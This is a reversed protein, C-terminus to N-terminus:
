FFQNYIYKRADEIEEKTKETEIEKEIETSIIDGKEDVNFNMVSYDDKLIFPIFESGSGHFFKFFFEYFHLRLANLFVLIGELVIVVINGFILAIVIIIQIFIGSGPITEIMATIALMLAVHALALALIRIYSLVNSPVSLVTEFTDISGEGLLAAVSSAKLYSIGFVKGLPKLIVLLLGPILPLLIPPFPASFWANLNFGWLVLLLIFGDLFLIKILSESFALYKKSEKWYNIFQLTWGLNIQIVGIALTLMLIPIINHLPDHFTTVGIFPLPIPISKLRYGLIDESGFFEGYLFGGLVAWIGCWFIIWCFNYLDGGRKKFVISGVIGSIILVLGHGIDGFMFGFLLPFTIFLFPTPDIESYSPTGYMRTLTEFPRIIRNHTMMTPTGKEIDEKIEKSDEKKDIINEKTIHNVGEEKIKENKLIEGRKGIDFIEIDIKDHFLDTLKQAIDEKKVQLTFFKYSLRNLSLEEFQNEAWNYEELNSIVENMAAFKLLNAERIRNIEKEYKSLYNVMLEVEKDIREFNIGDPTLYKKIIPVEEAHIISLKERLDSEQEKLYIIFIASRESTIPETQIIHPFESFDFLSNIIGLNKSFTTYARFSFQTLSALNSRNLNFQELFHYTFKLSTIKELEIKSNTIYRELEDFRNTYYNIEELLDNILEHSDKSNYIVKEKSKVKIGQFDLEDIELKKFLVDLNLRLNKVKEKFIDEEEKSKKVQYESRAKIHTVKAEALTTLFMDKYERDLTVKFLSM